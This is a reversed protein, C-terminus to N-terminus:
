SLPLSPSEGWAELSHDPQKLHEQVAALLEAHDPSSSSQDSAQAPMSTGGAHRAPATRPRDHRARLGMAEHASIVATMPLGHLALRLLPLVRLIPWCLASAANLLGCRITDANMGKRPTGFRVRPALYWLPWDQWGERSLGFLLRAALHNGRRPVPADARAAPLGPLAPACRAACEAAPPNVTAATNPLPTPAANAIM